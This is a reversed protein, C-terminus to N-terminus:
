AARYLLDVVLGVMASREQRTRLTRMEALIPELRSALSAAGTAEDGEKKARRAMQLMVVAREDETLWSALEETETQDVYKPAHEGHIYVGKDSYTLVYRSGVKAHSVPNRKYWLDGRQSDKWEYVIRDRGDLRRGSYTRISTEM